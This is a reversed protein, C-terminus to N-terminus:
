FASLNLQSTFPQLGRARVQGQVKPVTNSARIIELPGETFGVVMPALFVIVTRV